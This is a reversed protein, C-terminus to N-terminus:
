NTEYEEGGYVDALTQTRAREIRAMRKEFQGMAYEVYPGASQGFPVRTPDYCAFAEHVIQVAPDVLENMRALIAQWLPDGHEAVLRSLLFVGYALHRSEDGKLLASVKQMGPMIGRTQLVQHYVYYGTEALVGEVIMNYTVSARAQAIPSRDTRLRGMAHPLEDYFIRRYSPTHYRTLDERVGAVDDFFRRFVEVHKAEEWLFSTLYLEEELRGEDSIAMMLPLIDATVSEEGAEFMATLRLLFDREDDALAAWDKRDQSFDIDAPNWIGLRKAKDWLRMPPTDYRLATPSISQFRRVSEGAAPAAVINPAVAESSSMPASVPASVPAIGIGAASHQVQRAAEVLANAAAVHPLLAALSGKSLKLKGRLLATIPSTRGDLLADWTVADGRLVFASHETDSATGVRAERCAGHWLDLYVSHEPPSQPDPLWELLLAGEWTAAADRYAASANLAEGLAHAWAQSFLASM